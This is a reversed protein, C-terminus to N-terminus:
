RSEKNSSHVSYVCHMIFAIFFSFSITRAPFSESFRVPHAMNVCM